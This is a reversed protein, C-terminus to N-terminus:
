ASAHAERGGLVPALSSVRQAPRLAWSSLGIALLVLPPLAMAVPDGAFLHSLAAGSLAFTFGAYAWEKLRPLGPVLLAIAGLVKWTGLILPFYVPYGLKQLSAVVEPARMLNMAGSGTLALSFLGTAIWYGILKGRMTGRTEAPSARERRNVPLM